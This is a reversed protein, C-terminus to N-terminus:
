AVTEGDLINNFYGHLENRKQLIEKRPVDRMDAYLNYQVGPGSPKDFAGAVRLLIEAAKNSDSAKAHRGAGGTLNKKVSQLVLSLDINEEQLM